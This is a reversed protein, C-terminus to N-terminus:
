IFAWCKLNFPPVKKKSLTVHCITQVICALEKCHLWHQTTEVTIYVKHVLIINVMEFKGMTKHWTHHAESALKIRMICAGEQVSWKFAHHKKESTLKNTLLLVTEREAKSMYSIIYVICAYAYVVLHVCVNAKWCKM